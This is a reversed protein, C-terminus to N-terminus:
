KSNGLSFGPVILSCILLNNEKVKLLDIGNDKALSSSKESVENFNIYIWGFDKDSKKINPRTYNPNKEQFYNVDVVVRSKIFNKIVKEKEIYFAKGKYECLHINIFLFKQGYKTLHARIHKKGLYYKFPFM